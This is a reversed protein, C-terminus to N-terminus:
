TLGEAELMRKREIRKTIKISIEYLIVLPLCVLLQSFVDPPTIIASLSLIVIISHKRYKKLFAESVLGIKAFFYVLVPLEFIIGAALIVSNITSIYSDLNIENAVSSSVQYSGLFHITLPTILYYGFLVGSLFLGSTYFIAGRSHKIEKDFLAPKIFRWMEWFVYPFAMILGLLLSIRIHTSFQGAMNINYIDIPITNICLFGNNVTIGLVEFFGQLYEGASCLMRNTWFSAEKPAFIIREFIFDSYIFAIVAFFLIVLISRMLHWRLVELHDLFSMEVKENLNERAM